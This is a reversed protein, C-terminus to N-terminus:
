ALMGTPVLLLRNQLYFTLCTQWWGWRTWSEGLITITVQNNWPLCAELSYYLICFCKSKILQWIVLYLLEVMKEIIYNVPRHLLM